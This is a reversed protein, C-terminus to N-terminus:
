SIWLVGSARYVAFIPKSSMFHTWSSGSFAIEYIPLQQIASSSDDQLIPELSVSKSEVEAVEPEDVRRVWAFPVKVRTDVSEVWRGLMKGVLKLGSLETKGEPM